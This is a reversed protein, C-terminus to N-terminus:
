FLISLFKTSIDWVILLTLLLFIIVWFLAPLYTIDKLNKADGAKNPQKWAIILLQIISIISEILIIGATIYLVLSTILPNKIYLVIAILLGYTILWFIGYINRVFFTLNLIIIILLGILGAYYWENFAIIYLLWAIATSLPYGSFSILFRKWKSGTKTLATGSTDSFLEIQIVEANLLLAVLAHASEHVMTNIVKFYKGIYPIQTLLLAAAISFLFQYAPSLTEM